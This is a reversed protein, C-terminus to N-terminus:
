GVDVLMLWEGKPRQPVRADGAIVVNGHLAPALRRIALTILWTPGGLAALSSTVLNQIFHQLEHKKLYAESESLAEEGRAKPQVPISEESGVSDRVLLDLNMLKQGEGFSVTYRDTKPRLVVRSTGLPAFLDVKFPCADKLSTQAFRVPKDAPLTGQRRVNGARISTTQSLSPM